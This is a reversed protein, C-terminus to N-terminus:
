VDFVTRTILGFIPFGVNSYAAPTAPNPLTALTVSAQKWCGFMKWFGAGLTTVTFRFVENTGTTSHALGCYYLGPRLKLALTVASPLSATGAATSATQGLLVYDADYVGVSFNGAPVSGNLWFAKYINTIPATLTFPFALLDNAAFTTAGSAAAGSASMRTSQGLSHRSGITIVPATPMYAIGGRPDRETM